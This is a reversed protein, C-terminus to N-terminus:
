IVVGPHNLATWVQSKLISKAGSISLGASKALTQSYPLFHIVKNKDSEVPEVLFPKEVESFSIQAVKSFIIAWWVFHLNIIVINEEQIELTCCIIM